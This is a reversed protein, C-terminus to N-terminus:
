SLSPLLRLGMKWGPFACIMLFRLYDRSFGKGQSFHHSYWRINLHSWYFRLLPSDLLSFM